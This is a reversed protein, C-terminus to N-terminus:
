LTRLETAAFIIADSLLVMNHWPFLFAGQDINFICLATYDHLEQLPFHWTVFEFQLLKKTHLTMSQTQSLVKDM